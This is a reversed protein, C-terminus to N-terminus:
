SWGGGNTEQNCYFQAPGSM